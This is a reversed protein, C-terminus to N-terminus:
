TPSPAPKEEIPVLPDVFHAQYLDIHDVGLRRLSDDCARMIWRRSLGERQSRTSRGDAFGVGMAARVKRATVMEDRNGRAALWRDIIEESVGGANVPGGM